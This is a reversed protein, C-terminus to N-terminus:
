RALDAAESALQLAVLSNLTPSFRNRQFKSAIISQTSIQEKKLSFAFASHIAFFRSDRSRL